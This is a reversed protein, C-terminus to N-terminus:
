GYQKLGYSGYDRFSLGYSLAPAGFGISGDTAPDLAKRLPRINDDDAM